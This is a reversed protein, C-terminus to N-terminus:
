LKQANKPGEQTFVDFFLYEVDASSLADALLRKLGDQGDDGHEKLWAASSAVAWDTFCLTDFEGSSARVLVVADDGKVFRKGCCTCDNDPQIFKAEVSVM